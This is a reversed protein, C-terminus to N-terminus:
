TLESAVLYDYEGFVLGFPAVEIDVNATGSPVITGTGLDFYLHMFFGGGPHLLVRGPMPLVKILKNEKSVKSFAEVSYPVYPVDNVQFEALLIKPAPKYSVLRHFAVVAATNAANRAFVKGSSFGFVYQAYTKASTTTVKQEWSYLSPTGGAATTKLDQPALMRFGYQGTGPKLGGFPKDDFYGKAVEVCSTYFEKEGALDAGLEEDVIKRLDNVLLDFDRDWVQRDEDKLPTRSLSRATGAMINMKKFSEPDINGM